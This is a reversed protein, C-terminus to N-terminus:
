NPNLDGYSYTGDGHGNSTNFMKVVVVVIVALIVLAIIDKKKM